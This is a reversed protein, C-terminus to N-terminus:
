TPCRASWPTSSRAETRSSVTVPKRIAAAPPHRRGDAVRAAAEAARVTTATRPNWRKGAHPPPSDRDVGAARRVVAPAPSRSGFAIQREVLDLAPDQVGDPAGPVGRRAARGPGARAARRYRRACRPPRRGRRRRSSTVPSPGPVTSSRPLPPLSRMTGTPEQQKLLEGRQERRAAARAETELDQRVRTRLADLTEFDGLDKAFEDDLGPVVRQRIEKITM